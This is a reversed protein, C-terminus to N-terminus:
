RKLVREKIISQLEKSDINASYEIVFIKRLKILEQLKISAITDLESESYKRPLIWPNRLSETDTPTFCTDSLEEFSCGQKIFIHNDNTMDIRPLIIYDLDIEENLCCKKFIQPLYNKYLSFKDSLEWEKMMEPTFESYDLNKIKSLFEYLKSCNQATGVSLVIPIPFYNIKNDTTIFIRDNSIFDFKNDYSELLKFMFTTKGSGSNGLILIGNNEIGIGNGHMFLSKANEQFRVYIERIIYLLEHRLYNIKTLVVFEYENVQYIIYRDNSSVFYNNFKTYYENNFTQIKFHEYKKIDNMKKDFVEISNIYNIIITKSNNNMKHEMKYISDSLLKYYMTYDDKNNFLVSFNWDCLSFDIKNMM